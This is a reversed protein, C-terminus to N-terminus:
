MFALENYLVALTRIGNHWNDLDFKENPSHIRDDPLGFGVLLTDIGLFQKIQGVVPISGGEAMFIPNAGFGIKLANAALRIAPSNIPVTVAPSAGHLAFEVKVSPPCYSRIHAIFADRIKEPNQFPVLRMSLKASAKSPIITKAGVGQYGSTLGNVDCTPRAWRCELPSFGEEGHWQSLGLEALEAKEDFPLKAWSQRQSDPLPAVDTYFGPINVRGHADHLTSLIECLINAPNPVSGGFVGSHLDHSPGTLTIEFYVLGRLAATISPIGRAYQSTDSILAIDAKLKQANAQIFDVLNTSGIEEEGEILAIINVPYEGHAKLAALAQLHCHIQGKDDAAGRAFLANNRLTPTFPQTKWLDLPEVPQVDYHGYLLVTKKAPNHPTHALVIPNGPTKEISSVFGLSAFQDSIWQACRACDPAHEPKASVSPISLLTILQQLAASRGADIWRFLPAYDM